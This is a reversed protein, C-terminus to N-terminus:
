FTFDDSATPAAPPSFSAWNAATTASTFDAFDAFIDDSPHAPLSSFATDPAATGSNAPATAFAAFSPAPAFQFDGFIDDSPPVPVTSTGSETLPAAIPSAFDAFGSDPVCFCGCDDDAVVMPESSMTPANASAVFVFSGDRDLVVDQAVATINTETAANTAALPHDVSAGCSTSLTPAVLSPAVPPNVFEELEFPTTPPDSPEDVPVSETAPPTVSAVDEQSLAFAGEPNSAAEIIPGTVFSSESLDVPVSGDETAAPAQSDGRLDADHPLASACFVASTDSGCVNVLEEPTPLTDVVVEAVADSSVAANPEFAPFAGFGDTTSADTPAFAGFSDDAPPPSFEAAAFAPFAESAPSVDCVVSSENFAGFGDTEATSVVESSSFAFATPLPADGTSSAAFSSGDFAASTELKSTFAAFGDDDVSPAADFAGFGSSAFGNAAPADPAPTFAGFDVAVPADSPADFAGFSPSAETAGITGFGDAGPSSFASFDGGSATLASAFAGADSSAFPGFGDGTVTEAGFAQFGHTTPADAFGDSNATAAFSGFSPVDMPPFAGLDKVAPAPFVGFANKATPEPASTASGFSPSDFGHVNPAQTKPARFLENSDIKKPATKTVETAEDLEPVPEYQNDAFGWDMDNMADFASFSSSSASAFADLVPKETAVVHTSAVMPATFSGGTGGLIDFGFPDGAGTPSFLLPEPVTQTPLIPAPAAEFADWGATPAPFSPPADVYSSSAKTDVHLGPHRSGHRSMAAEKQELLRASQTKLNSLTQVLTALPVGEPSSLLLDKQVGQVYTLLVGELERLSSESLMMATDPLHYGLAQLPAVISSVSPVVVVPLSAVTKQLTAQISAQMSLMDDASTCQALSALSSSFLTPFWERPVSMPLQTLGRRTKCVIVHMAITFAQQPLATLLTPDVLKYIAQVDALALGSKQFLEIAETPAITGSPASTRFISAYKEEDSPTMVFIDALHFLPLPLQRARGAAVLAALDLAEGKQALAILGLAVHFEDQDLYPQMKSSALSWVQKLVSPALGSTTFFDVAKKGQVKGNKDVDALAFMRGYFAEEEPSKVWM